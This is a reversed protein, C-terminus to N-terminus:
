LGLHSVLTWDRPRSFGRSFPFAGWELIRRQLIGHIFFCPPSCDTPDCLSPWLQFVLVYMPQLMLPHVCVDTIHSLLCSEWNTAWSIRTCLFTQSSHNKPGSSFSERQVEYYKNKDLDVFFWNSGDSVFFPFKVPFIWSSLHRQVVQVESWSQYPPIQTRTKNWHYGAHRSRNLGSGWWKKTWTIAFGSVERRNELQWTLNLQCDRLESEQNESSSSHDLEPLVNRGTEM